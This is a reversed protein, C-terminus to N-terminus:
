VATSIPTDSPFPLEDGLRSVDSVAAKDVLNSPLAKTTKAGLSRLLEVQRVLNGGGTHLKEVAKEWAARSQKLADGIAELDAVFGVFKDYLKGGRDAIEQANKHQDSLQWVNSVTRLTALLTSNTILVVNKSLADAFLGPENSVAVFFAAEIPIYMLVFDPANIGHIDQYRKAGLGKFHDRIAKLHSEILRARSVDDVSNVYDEYSKLSVKSDIILHHNEPLDVVVDLFRQEGDADKASHQRRYHVGKQLGSKELLQDLMNEGWNGLVKADGKLARSLNSAETGIRNLQDKLLAGDQAAQIRSKDLGTKFHELETKLPTLIKELNKGSDEVFRGSNEVLLKNAVAEFKDQFQKQLNEMQSRESAIRNELNKLTEALRVNDDRNERAQGEANKL